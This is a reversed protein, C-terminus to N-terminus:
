GHAVPAIGKQYLRDPHQCRDNIIHTDDLDVLLQAVGSSSDRNVFCPPKTRHGGPPLVLPTAQLWARTQTPSSAASSRADLVARYARDDAHALDVLSARQNEALNWLTQITNRADGDLQRKELTIRAAKAILAAGMAATIAAAAVAGPLPKNSLDNLWVNLDKMRHNYEPRISRDIIEIM